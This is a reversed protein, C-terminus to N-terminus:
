LIFPQWFLNVTLVINSNQKQTAYLFKLGKFLLICQSYIIVKWNTHYWKLATWQIIESIKLIIKRDQLLELFFYHFNPNKYM